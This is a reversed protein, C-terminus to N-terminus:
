GGSIETPVGLYRELWTHLNTIRCEEQSLSLHTFGPQHLGRQVHRLNSIDQNLVLGFDADDPSVTIDTPQGVEEIESETDPVRELFLSDMYAEDPTPGPRARVVQCLDALAVITVNPFLNYQFLDMVQAQDFASYDVGNREGEARVMGELVDRMTQGEPVDPHPGPDAGTEKGIRKGMVEIYAEWVEQDTAGGRLRPSALGYPQLLRGHKGFLSNPSNVDDCMPLMERHIGQVHYTESFAEILTKWNCQLPVTVGYRCVFRELDLWAIDDPIEGLFEALPEAGLDLNVFVLGGWTDVRVPILPYDENRLVGFGKRSPVESLGGQLDWCWRHYGCRIESLGDGGGVCLPNGRHLCVNQFARLEDDDGRVLLVSLAGVRYEHYDGPRAVHRATCALQWVCPWLREAELEAWESSIYRSTPIRTPTRGPRVDGITSGVPAADTLTDRTGDTTTTM